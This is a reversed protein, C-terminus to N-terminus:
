QLSCYLLSAFSVQLCEKHQGIPKFPQLCYPLLKHLRQIVQSVSVVSVLLQSNLPLLLLQDGHLNLVNPVVELVSNVRLESLSVGRLRKFIQPISIHLQLLAHAVRPRAMGEFFSSVISVQYAESDHSSENLLAIMSGKILLEPGM